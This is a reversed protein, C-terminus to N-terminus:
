WNVFPLGFSPQERPSGKARLTYGEKRHRGESRLAVAKRCVAVPYDEVKVALHREGYAYNAYGRCGWAQLTRDMELRLDYHLRCAHKQIDFAYPLGRNIKAIPLRKHDFDRKRSYITLSM